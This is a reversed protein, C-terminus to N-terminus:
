SQDKVFLPVMITWAVLVMNRYFEIMPAILEPDIGYYRLIPFLGFDGGMMYIWLAFSFAAIAVLKWRPKGARLASTKARLLIVVILLCWALIPKAWSGAAAAQPVLLLYAGIAEIPILKVLKELYTNESLM